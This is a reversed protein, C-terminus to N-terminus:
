HSPNNVVGTHRPNARFMPWASRMLAAHGTIANLKQNWSQVYIIGDSAIVPSVTAASQLWVGWRMFSDPEIATFTGDPATFYIYDDAAIAPTSDLLTDPAPQKWKVKGDASIASCFENIGTYITGDSAIV